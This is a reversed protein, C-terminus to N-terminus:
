FRLSPFRVRSMRVPLDLARVVLGGRLGRTFTYVIVILLYILSFQKACPLALLFFITFAALYSYLTCFLICCLLIPYFM